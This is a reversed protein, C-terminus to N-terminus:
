WVQVSDAAFIKEVLQAYDPEVWGRLDVVEVQNEPLKTQNDSVETALDPSNPTLIHLIKRM